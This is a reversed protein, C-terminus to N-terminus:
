IPQRLAAQKKNEAAMVRAISGIVCPATAENARKRNKDKKIHTNMLDVADVTHRVLTDVRQALPTNVDWFNMVIKNCSVTKTAEFSFISGVEVTIELHLKELIQAVYFASLVTNEFSQCGRIHDYFEPDCLIENARKVAVKVKKLNGTYVLSIHEKM